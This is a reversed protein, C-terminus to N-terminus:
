SLCARTARVRIEIMMRAAPATGTVLGEFHTSVAAMTEKEM